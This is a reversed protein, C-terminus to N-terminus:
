KLYSGFARVFHCTYGGPNNILYDQHYNEAPWFKTFKELTTVVPNDWNGSDNVLKIM